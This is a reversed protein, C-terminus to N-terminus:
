REWRSKIRNLPDRYAMWFPLTHWTLNSSSAWQGTPMKQDIGHVKVDEMTRGKIGALNGFATRKHFCELESGLSIAERMIKKDIVMPIHLEFSLATQPDIGAKELVELTARAGRVYRSRLNMGKEWHELTDLVLGRNARPPEKTEKMAHFDDNLLIFEKPVFRSEVALSLAKTTNKYKRGTQPSNWWKGTYWRPKHDGILLMDTIWPCRLTYSRLAFRLEDEPGAFPMVGLM